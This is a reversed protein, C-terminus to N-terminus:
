KERPKIVLVVATGAPPRSKSGDVIHITDEVSGPDSSDLVTAGVSYNVVINGEADAAFVGDQVSSGVFVWGTAQLNNGTRTDILWKELPERWQKGQEDQWEIFLDCLDGQKEQGGSLRAGNEAGLLYLMAQVQVALVECCLLTEHMRGDPRCVIVELAGETLVFKCPLALEKAAVRVVAGAFAIDGNELCKAAFPLRPEAAALGLCWCSVLILLTKM